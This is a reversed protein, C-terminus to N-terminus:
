TSLEALHDLWQSMRAFFDATLPEPAALCNRRDGEVNLGRAGGCAHVFAPDDLFTLHYNLLNLIAKIRDGDGGELIELFVFPRCRELTQRGGSIIDLEATEADIKVVAPTARRAIDDLTVCQVSTAGVHSRYAANLSNSMDSRQSLYFTAEGSQSSVAEPSVTIGLGYDWSIAQLVSAAAPFPEFALVSAKLAAAASVAFVGINAGIDVVPGPRMECAALFASLTLPEYNKIGNSRLYRPLHFKPPHQFEITTPGPFTVRTTEQTPRTVQNRKPKKFLFVSHGTFHRLAGPPVAARALTGLDLAQSLDVREFGSFLDLVRDQFDEIGFVRLHDKQFFQNTREEPSMSPDMNERSWGTHIPVQFAHFGGPMLAENLEHVVRDVSAPVHELVHSHIIGRVSAPAFHKLPRALDVQRVEGDFWSYLEPEFDAAHYAAGFRAALVKTLAQEPAFHYVPGSLDEFVVTALALAMLREREKAGCGACRANARGRYPAFRGSGCLPCQLETTPFKLSPVDSCRDM